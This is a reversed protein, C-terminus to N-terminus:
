VKMVSQPLGLLEGPYHGSEGKKVVSTVSTVSFVQVEFVRLFLEAL